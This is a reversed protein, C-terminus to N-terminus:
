MVSCGSSKQYWITDGDKIEHHELTEHDKYEQGRWTSHFAWAKYPDQGPHERAWKQFVGPQEFAKAKISRISDGPECDITFSTEGEGIAAGFLSVTVRMHKNENRPWTNAWTSTRRGPKHENRQM